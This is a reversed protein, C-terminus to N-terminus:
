TVETQIVSGSRHRVPIPRPAKVAVSTASQIPKATQINRSIRAPVRSMRKARATMRTNARPGSPRKNYRSRRGLSVSAATYSRYLQFLLRQQALNGLAAGARVALGDGLRFPRNARLAAGLQAVGQVAHPLGSSSLQNRAGVQVVGTASGCYTSSLRKRCGTTASCGTTARSGAACGSGTVAGAVMVSHNTTYLGSNGTPSSRVGYM